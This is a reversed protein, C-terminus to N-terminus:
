KQSMEKAMGVWANRVCVLRHHLNHVLSQRLRQRAHSTPSRHWHMTRGRMGVLERVLTQLIPDVNNRSSIDQSLYLVGAAVTLQLGRYRVKVQRVV